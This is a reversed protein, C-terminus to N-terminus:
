LLTTKSPSLLLDKVLERPKGNLQEIVETLDKCSHQENYRYRNLTILHIEREQIVQKMIDRASLANSLKRPYVVTM